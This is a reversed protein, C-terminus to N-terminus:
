KCGVWHLQQTDLVNEPVNLLAVFVLQFEVRQGEEINGLSSMWEGIAEVAKEPSTFMDAEVASGVIKGGGLYSSEGFKVSVYLSHKM